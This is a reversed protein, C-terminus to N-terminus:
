EIVQRFKNKDKKPMYDVGPIPTYDKNISTKLDDGYKLTIYSTTHENKDSVKIMLYKNWKIKEYIVKKIIPDSLIDNFDNDQRYFTLYKM